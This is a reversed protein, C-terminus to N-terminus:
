LRRSGITTMLIYQWWWTKLFLQLAYFRERSRFKREDDDWRMGYNCYHPNSLVRDSQFDSDPFEDLYHEARDEYLIQSQPPINLNSM